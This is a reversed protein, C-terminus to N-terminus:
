AVRAGFARKLLQREAATFRGRFVEVAFLSLLCGGFALGAAIAPAVRTARAFRLDHSQSAFWLDFGVFMMFGWLLCVLLLPWFGSLFRGTEALKRDFESHVEVTLMIAGAAM